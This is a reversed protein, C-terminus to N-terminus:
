QDESGGCLWDVVSVMLSLFICPLSILIMLVGLAQNAVKSNEIVVTGFVELILLVILPIRLIEAIRHYNRKKSKRLLFACEYNGRREGCRCIRGVIDAFFQFIYVLVDVLLLMIQVLANTEVDKIITTAIGIGLVICSYLTPRINAYVNALSSVVQTEQESSNSRSPM